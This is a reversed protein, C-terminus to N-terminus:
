RRSRTPNPGRPAPARACPRRSGCEPAAPEVLRAVAVQGSRRSRSRGDDHRREPRVEASPVALRGRGGVAVEGIRACYAVPDGVEVPDLRLHHVWRDVKGGLALGPRGLVDLRAEREAHRAQEGVLVDLHHTGREATKWVLAQDDDPGTREARAEGLGRRRVHRHEPADVVRGQAPEVPRARSEDGGGVLVEPECRDLGGAETLRGGGQSPAAVEVGDDLAPGTHEEVQRRALRDRLGEGPEGNRLPLDVGQRAWASRKERGTNM